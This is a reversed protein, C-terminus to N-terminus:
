LVDELTWGKATDEINYVGNRKPMNSALLVDEKLLEDLEIAPTIYKEKM